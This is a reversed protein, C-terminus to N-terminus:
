QRSEVPTAQSLLGCEPCRDPTARLDYGCSTCLGDRLSLRRRVIHLSWYAPPLGFLLAPFWLPLFWWKTYHASVWSFDPAVQNRNGARVGFGAFSVEYDEGWTADDVEPWSHDARLWVKGADTYIVRESFHFKQGNLGNQWYSRVWLACTALCLTLSLAALLTFLRRRM